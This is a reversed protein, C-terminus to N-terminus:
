NAFTMSHPPPLLHPRIQLRFSGFLRSTQADTPGFLVSNIWRDSKKKQLCKHTSFIFIGVCAQHATVPFRGRLDERQSPTCAWHWASHHPYLSLHAATFMLHMLRQDIVLQHCHHVAPIAAFSSLRVTPQESYGSAANARLTLTELQFFFFFVLKFSINKLRLDCKCGNNQVNTALQTFMQLPQHTVVAKSTPKEKESKEWHRLAQERLSHCCHVHKKTTLHLGQSSGYSWILNQLRSFYNLSELPNEKEKWM